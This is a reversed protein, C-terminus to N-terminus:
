ELSGLAEDPQLRHRWSVHDAPLPGRRRLIPTPSGLGARKLFAGVQDACEAAGEHSPREGSRNLLYLPEGTEALSVILPHYGWTGDYALGMGQKCEGFTEALSGDFDVTAEDFFRDPQQKWIGLRVENLTEMLQRVDAESFRRCFDGATTPDPIRQAGLADLYAEDNRRWEIDQLCGGGALVNYAINLVHDSEHYPLKVKLLDLDRNIADVLGVRRSLVHMAGLGGCDLGRGKEGLEYHINSARLMPQAQPKWRRNRLRREIRQKRRKSRRARIKSV